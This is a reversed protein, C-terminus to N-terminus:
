VELKIWDPMSLLMCCFSSYPMLLLLITKDSERRFSDFMSICVRDSM